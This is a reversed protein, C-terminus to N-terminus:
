QIRVPLILFLYNDNETSTIVMPKNNENFNLKIDDNKITKFCDLMYNTNMGITFDKTGTTDFKATIETDCDATAANALIKIIGGNDTTPINIKSINAFNGHGVVLSLNLAQRLDSVNVMASFKFGNPIIRNIDFYKDDLLGSYIKTDNTSIILKSKEFTLNINESNTCVSQAIAMARSPITVNFNNDIDKNANFNSLTSKALKYGDCGVINIKGNTYSINVGRMIPRSDDKSVCVLARNVACAFDTANITITNANETTSDVKPYNIREFIKQKVNIRKSKIHLSNDKSYITVAENTNLQNIVGSFMEANVLETGQEYIDAKINKEIRIIGDTATLTIFDNNTEILLGGFIENLKASGLGKSVEGTAQKLDSVNIEFKM